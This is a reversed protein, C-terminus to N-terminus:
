HKNTEVNSGNPSLVYVIFIILVTKVGNVPTYREGGGMEM